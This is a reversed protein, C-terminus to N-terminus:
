RSKASAAVTITRTAGIGLQANKQRDSGCFRGPAVRGVEPSLIGEDAFVHKVEKVLLGLQQRIQSAQAGIQRLAFEIGQNADGVADGVTQGTLPLPKIPELRVVEFGCRAKCISHDEGTGDNADAQEAM